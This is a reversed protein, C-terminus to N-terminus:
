QGVVGGRGRGARRLREITNWRPTTPVRTPLLGQTILRTAASWGAVPTPPQEASAAEAELLLTVAAIAAVAEVEDIAGGTLAYTTM